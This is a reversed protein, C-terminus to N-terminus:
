VQLLAHIPQCPQYPQYPQCPQRPQCPAFLPLVFAVYADGSKTGLKGGGCAIVLYQKGNLSYMAPTAFGSAPLLYEWMLQGTRKNFARIKGDRTAAIFVLGAPPSLPVEMIKQVPLSARQKSSLIEGLPIKWVLEGNNLNIANLTGWPPKIAPYGEKSLFKNYGTIGYSLNLFTDLPQPPFSRAQEKKQRLLFSVLASKEVDTLQKFSPMMRRGTNILGLLTDPTYKEHVQLLSPFNGSGKMKGGHCNGCHQKYLRMGAEFYNEKKPSLDRKVMTLVWAMENANVYLIGTAPDFAPGGWEAGGDFGPFVITGQPSPPAYMHDKRYSEM